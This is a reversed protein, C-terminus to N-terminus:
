RIRTPGAQSPILELEQRFMYSTLIRLVSFVAICIALTCTDIGVYTGDHQCQCTVCSCSASNSLTDALTRVAFLAGPVGVSCNIRVPAGDAANLM